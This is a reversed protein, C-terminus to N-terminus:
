GRSAGILGAVIAAHMMLLWLGDRKQFYFALVYLLVALLLWQVGAMSQGVCVLRVM